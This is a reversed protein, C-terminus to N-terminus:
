SFYSNRFMRMDSNRPPAIRQWNNTEVNKNQLKDQPHESHRSQYEESPQPEYYFETARRRPYLELNNINFGFFQKLPFMTKSIIQLIKISYDLIKQLVLHLIQFKLLFNGFM